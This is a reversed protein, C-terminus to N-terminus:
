RWGRTHPRARGVEGKGRAVAVVRAASLRSVGSEVLRAAIAEDSLRAAEAEPIELPGFSMTRPEEVEHGSEMASTFVSRGLAATVDDEPGIRAEENTIAAM